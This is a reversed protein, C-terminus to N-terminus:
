RVDKSFNTRPFLAIKCMHYTFDMLVQQDKTENQWSAFRILM